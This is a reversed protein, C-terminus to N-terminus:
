GGNKGFDVPLDADQDFGCVEPEPAECWPNSAQVFCACRRPFHREPEYRGLGPLDGRWAAMCVGRPSLNACLRCPQRDDPQLDALTPLMAGVPEVLSVERALQQSAGAVAVTAVEAVGQGAGAVPTALAAPTATAFVEPDRKGRILQALSM